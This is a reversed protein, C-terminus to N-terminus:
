YTGLHRQGEGYRLLLGELVLEALHCTIVSAADADERQGEWLVDVLASLPAALGSIPIVYKIM